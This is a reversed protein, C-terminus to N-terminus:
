KVLWWYTACRNELLVIIKPCINIVKATEAVKLQLNHGYISHLLYLSFIFLCMQDEWLALIIGLTSRISLITLFCQVGILNGLLCYYSLDSWNYSLAKNIIIVHNLLSTCFRTSRLFLPKSFLREWSPSNLPIM